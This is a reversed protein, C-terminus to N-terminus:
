SHRAIHQKITRALNQAHYYAGKVVNVGGHKYLTNASAMSLFFNVFKQPGFSGLAAALGPHIGLAMYGAQTAGSMSFTFILHSQEPIQYGWAAKMAALYSGYKKGNLLPFFVGVYSGIYGVASAALTSLLTLTIDGGTAEYTASAAVSRLCICVAGSTMQVRLFYEGSFNKRFFNVIASHKTSSEHEVGETDIDATLMSLDSYGGASHEIEAIKKLLGSGHHKSRLRGDPPYDIKKVREAGLRKLISKGDLKPHQDRSYFKNVLQGTERIKDELRARITCEDSINIM